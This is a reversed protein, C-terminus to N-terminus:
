RGLPSVFLVVIHATPLDLHERMRAHAPGASRKGDNPLGEEVYPGGYPGRAVFGYVAVVQHALLLSFFPFDTNVHFSQM